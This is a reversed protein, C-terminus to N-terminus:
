PNPITNGALNGGVGGCTTTSYGYQQNRGAVSATAEVNSGTDSRVNGIIDLDILHGTYGAGADLAFPPNSTTNVIDEAVTRWGSVQGDIQWTTTWSRSQLQGGTVRWQVCKFTGNAQTYVRMSFGAPISAGANTGEGAPDYLVNGSRVQRDIEDVALRVQDNTQGRANVRNETNQISVLAAMVISLVTSLLGMVVLLEVLTTGHERDATRM